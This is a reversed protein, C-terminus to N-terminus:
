DQYIMTPLELRPWPHNFIDIVHCEEQSQWKDAAARSRATYAVTYLLSVYCYLYNDVIIAPYPPTPTNPAAFYTPSPRLLKSLERPPPTCLLNKSIYISPASFKKSWIRTGDSLMEVLGGWLLQQCSGILVMWFVVTPPFPTPAKWPHGTWVLNWWDKPRPTISMHVTAQIRAFVLSFYMWVSWFYRRYVQKYIFHSAVSPLPTPTWHLCAPSVYLMLLCIFHTNEYLMCQKSM